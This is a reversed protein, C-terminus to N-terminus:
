SIPVRAQVLTVAECFLIVRPVSVVAQCCCGDRDRLIEGGGRGGGASGLVLQGDGEVVGTQIALV